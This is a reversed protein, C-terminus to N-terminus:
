LGPFLGAGSFCALAAVLLRTKQQENFIYISSKDSKGEGNEARFREVEKTSCFM